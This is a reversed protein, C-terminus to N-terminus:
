FVVLVPIKSRRILHSATSGLLYDRIKKRGHSGILILDAKEREAARAIVDIPNGKETLVRYRIDHSHLYKLETDMAMADEEPEQVSLVVMEEWIGAFANVCFQLAREAIPSGDYPFLLRRPSRFTEPCVLVPRPSSRVVDETTSGVIARDFHAHEGKQGIVLLDGSRAEEALAHSPLGEKLATAIPVGMSEAETRCRALCKEGFASLDEKIRAYFDKLGPEPPIYVREFGYDFHSATYIIPLDTKRTDVVFVAAVESKTRQGLDLAYRLSAFSSLSGDIGVVIRGSV